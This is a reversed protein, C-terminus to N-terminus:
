TECAMRDRPPANAGTRLPGWESGCLHARVAFVGWVGGSRWGAEASAGTLGPTRAVLGNRFPLPCLAGGGFWGRGSGGVPVAGSAGQPGWLQGCPKDRSWRWAPPRAAAGQAMLRGPVACGM